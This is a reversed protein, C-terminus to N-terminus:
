YHVSVTGEMESEQEEVRQLYLSKKGEMFPETCRQGLLTPVKESM